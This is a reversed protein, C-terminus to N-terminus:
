HGVALISFMNISLNKLSAHFAKFTAFIIKSIKADIKCYMNDDSSIIMM